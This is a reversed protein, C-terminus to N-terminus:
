PTQRVVMEKLVVEDPDIRVDLPKNSLPFRMNTESGTPRLTTRETRRATVIEVPLPTLFPAGAQTQRLRITLVGRRGRTRQWTWSAEYRPHGSAYVWRAFFEKLSMGSAKELALRLDETSATKHEHALYFARIGRFFKRDGMLGRLMHLVWAGKQYNNGNLLKFLDETETDYIPARRAQEYTFYSEAQRRMYDRLAEKGDHREVFLGAFYTAFGESLWLDSWTKISVSDGFWQHAIEHATVEVLGRRINFRRSVPPADVPRSFLNGAFVIASANEM